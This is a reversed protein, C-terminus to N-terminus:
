KTKILKVTKSSNGATIQLIYIGQPGNLPVANEQGAQLPAMRLLAGAPTYVRCTRPEGSTEGIFIRVTQSPPDYVAKIERDPISLNGNPDSSATIEDKTAPRTTGASLSPGNGPSVGGGSPSVFMNTFVEGISVTGAAGGGAALTIQQAYLPLPLLLLLCAMLKRNQKM